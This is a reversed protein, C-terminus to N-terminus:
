EIVIRKEVTGDDYIYFLSTNKRYPTEQGLMDTIKIINSTNNDIDSIGTTTITLNLNAISDCGVSNTLTVSYDGSVGLSMGNWLISASVSLTDYSSTSNNITLNLTHTSDCGAANTYVNTYAGSATYAVGDWSYTDCATVSSTGATSNNITLVLTDIHLCYYYSWIDNYSHTYMGSTTYNQNWWGNSNSYISWNYTNCGVTDISSTSLCNNGLSDVKMLLRGGSIIYGGDYTQQVCEGGLPAIDNPTWFFDPYYNEWITNGAVDFKRLLLTYGCNGTIIYGGDNTQQIHWGYSNNNGGCPFLHSWDINSLSDLKVILINGDQTGSFIYGGDNTQQISHAEAWTNGSIVKTWLTDGFNNTNIIYSGSAGQSSQGMGAIIYGGNATQQVSKGEGSTGYTKSWQLNGTMDTKLLSIKSIQPFYPRIKGTMIFGGDTVQQVCYARDDSFQTTVYIQSWQIIGLSDTKYLSAYQSNSNSSGCAIYGGDITQQVSNAMNNNFSPFTQRWVEDGCKDTKLIAAQISASSTISPVYGAIIYGSDSTQQVYHSTFDNFIKIFRTSCNIQGFGIFPLCLLILLLKKM